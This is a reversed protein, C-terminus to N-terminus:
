GQHRLARAGAVLRRTGEVALHGVHLSEPSLGGMGQVVEAAKLAAVEEVTKGVTWDAVFSGTAMSAVCGKAKFRVQLFRAGDFKAALELVDGCVPNEVRVRVDAGELDGACRPHEFHDIVEPTYAM